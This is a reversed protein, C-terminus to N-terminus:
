QGCSYMNRSEIVRGVFKSRGAEYRGERFRVRAESSRTPAATVRRVGWLGPRAWNLCGTRRDGCAKARPSGFLHGRKACLQQQGQSAIGGTDRQYLKHARRREQLEKRHFTIGPREKGETPGKSRPEGGERDRISESGDTSRDALVAQRGDRVAESTARAYSVM